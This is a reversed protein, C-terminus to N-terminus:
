AQASIERNLLAAIQRDGHNPRAAVVSTILTMFGADRASNLRFEQM